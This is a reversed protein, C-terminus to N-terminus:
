LALDSTNNVLWKCLVRYLEDKEIPKSVYDNMGVSLCKERDGKMANATLAIIPINANNQGKVEKKRIVRTAELGDMEPMQVDMLILDYNISCIAEVAELGNDAVDVSYGMKELMRREIKQNIINDEALLIRYSHTDEKDLVVRDPTAEKDLVVTDAINRDAIHKEKQQHIKDGHVLEILTNFLSSSKVPKPLSRAINYAELEKTTLRGAVSSTLIIVEPKTFSGQKIQQATQKGDMEPMLMDVLVIRYPQKNDSARQLEALGAAGSEVANSLCGINDAMKKLIIRNSANDDIILVRLNEFDTQDIERTDDSREGKYGQKVKVTFWFNSGKGPESEMGIEGGMLKVLKRCISLGLGTGGYKRTTSGDAQSFSEFVADQRAPPIGIGSDKVRLRININAEDQKLLEAGIIIEGEETFKIANGGLNLLVQRIRSPDGHLCSPIESDISTIFELGKDHANQALMDATVYVVDSITFNTMEMEVKGAEIKSFDLIDNIIRLLSEGSLKVTEVYEHQDRDLKTDLLLSIMGIVGNMPTRIEHSMNALFESKARNAADAAIKAHELQEKARERETIVNRIQSIIHCFIITLVIGIGAIIIYRILAVRQIINQKEEELRQIELNSDYFIKSASERSRELFTNAQKLLLCSQKKSSRQDKATSASFEDNMAKVLDITIQKIDIIKPTLDIVEIVYRANKNRSYSYRERIENVDDFNAPIVDVFEGGAQWIDLISEINEISTLVQKEFVELDRIDGISSIKYIDKEILLLKRFVVRGLRRHASQNYLEIEYKQSIDLLIYETGIVVGFAILFVTVLFLVKREIPEKFLNRM